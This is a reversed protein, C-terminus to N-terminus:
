PKRQATVSFGMTFNRNAESTDRIDKRLAHISIIKAIWGYFVGLYKRSYLQRKEIAFRIRDQAKLAHYGGRKEITINEFHPELLQRIGAEGWQQYYGAEQTPTAMFSTSLLLTGKPKLIRAMEEIAKKPNRIYMLVEMCLISDISRDELPIKEASAVIDPHTGEDSDLTRYESIHSFYGRYRKGDQGGVDLISGQLLHANKQIFRALLHRDPQFIRM